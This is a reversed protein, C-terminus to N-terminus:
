FYGSRSVRTRDLLFIPFINCACALTVNPCEPCLINGTALLTVEYHGSLSNM